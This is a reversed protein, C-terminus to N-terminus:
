SVHYPHVQHKGEVVGALDVVRGMGPLVLNPCLEQLPILVFAREAMYPHPVTLQGTNIIKDEFILIDLDIIRPGWRITRVRGMDNEIRQLEQLLFWPDCTCQLEAVTNLFWDQSVPGVPDTKYLKATRVITVGPIARLKDLAQYINTEKCGM